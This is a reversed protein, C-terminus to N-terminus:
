FPNRPNDNKRGFTNTNQPNPLPTLPKSADRLYGYYQQINSLINPVIERVVCKNLDAIQGKVTERGLLNKSKQLFVSRMILIIETESQNDITYKGGSRKFVEYRIMNQIININEISFYTQNLLDKDFDNKLIDNRYNPIGSERYLEYNNRQKTDILTKRSDYVSDVTRNFEYANEM